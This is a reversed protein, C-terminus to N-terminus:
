GGVKGYCHSVVLYSGNGNQCVTSFESDHVDALQGNLPKQVLFYDASAAPLTVHEACVRLEILL